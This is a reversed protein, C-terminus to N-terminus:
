MFLNGFEIQEKVSLVQQRLRGFYASVYKGSHANLPTGNEVLGEFWIEVDRIINPDMSVLYNPHVLTTFAYDQNDSRVLFITNTNSIENHYVEFSPSNKNPKDNIPFRKGSRAMRELHDIILLLEDFLTDMCEKNVFRDLRAIYKIQRLTVDLIGVSWVERGPFSYAVKLISMAEEEVRPSIASPSFTEETLSHVGWAAYYMFIKFKRLMPMSLEYYLSLEPTAYDISIGPLENFGHIYQSLNKFYDYGTKRRGINNPYYMAPVGAVIQDAEKDVPVGFEKSLLILEDASLVTDGRIRRYIADRGLHLVGGVQNVLQSRSEFKKLLQDFFFRQFNEM